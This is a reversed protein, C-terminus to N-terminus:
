GTQYNAYIAQSAENINARENRPLDDRINPGISKGVNTPVHVKIHEPLVPMELSQTISYVEGRDEMISSVIDLLGAALGM